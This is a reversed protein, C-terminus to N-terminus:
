SSIQHYFNKLIFVLQFMMSATHDFHLEVTIFVIAMAEVILARPGYMFNVFLFHFRAIKRYVVKEDNEPLM